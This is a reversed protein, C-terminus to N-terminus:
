HHKNSTTSRSKVRVSCYGRRSVVRDLKRSQTSARLNWPCVVVAAVFTTRVERSCSFSYSGTFGSGAFYLERLLYVEVSKVARNEVKSVKTSKGVVCSSCGPHPPPVGPGARVPIVRVSTGRACVCEDRVCQVAAEEEEAEKSTRRSIECPQGRLRTSYM